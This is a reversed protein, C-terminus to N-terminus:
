LATKWPQNIQLDIHMSVAPDFRFDRAKNRLFNPKFKEFPWSLRSSTVDKFVTIPNWLLLLKNWVLQIWTCPLMNRYWFCVCNKGIIPLGWPGPPLKSFYNKLLGYASLLVLLLSCLFLSEGISYLHELSFNMIMEWHLFTFLKFSINSRGECSWASHSAIVHDERKHPIHNAQTLRRM